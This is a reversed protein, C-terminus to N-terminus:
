RNVIIRLGQPRTVRSLAVYMQGKVFCPLTLDITVEDFTLGQSKHISLAYALKIPMQEISGTEVLVLKDEEKNYIYKHKVFKTRELKYKVGAVKIYSIEEGEENVERWFTGLTGNRLPNDKSNVLYMIKAGHKVEIYPELAFEDAKANGEITATYTVTRGPLEALGKKNYEAVTTNHPCLIIGQPEHSVFQKFYPAKQGERVLNLATIFEVDNQRVIEDLEINKVNLKAYVNAYDFTDGGYFESLVARENDSLIVPLQKMDGIFVVHKSLLGGKIGSKSMTWHMADLIDPRLMSVEDIVISDAKTLLLRKEKSLSKCTDFDLIGFPQLAFMSHITQGEINQAAIGTPALAVYKHGVEGWLRFLQKVITSKGTGAKGSLFVNTTASSALQLFAEQNKTITIM